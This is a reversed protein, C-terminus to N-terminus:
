REISTKKVGSMDHLGLRPVPVKACIPMVTEVGDKLPMGLELLAIDASRALQKEM